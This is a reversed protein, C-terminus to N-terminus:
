PTVMGTGFGGIARAMTMSRDIRHHDKLIKMGMEEFKESKTRNDMSGETAQSLNLDDNAVIIAATFYITALKIDDPTTATAYKYSVYADVGAPSSNVMNFTSYNDIYIIGRETDTWLNNGVDTVSSGMTKSNDTDLYDTYAGGTWLKVNGNTQALSPTAHQTFTLIPYHSLQIRGRTSVVNSRVRQVRVREDTVSIANATSWAHDTLGEVRSEAMEIFGDVQTQTPTTASGGDTFGGVQL